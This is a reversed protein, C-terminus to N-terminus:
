CFERVSLKSDRCEQIVEARQRMLYEDRVALIDGM